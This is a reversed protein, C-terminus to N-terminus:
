FAEGWLNGLKFIIRKTKMNNYMAPRTEAWFYTLTTLISPGRPAPTLLARVNAVCNPQEPYHAPLRKADGSSTYPAISPLHPFGTRAFTLRGILAWAFYRERPSPRLSMSCSSSACRTRTRAIWRHAWAKRAIYGDDVPTSERVDCNARRTRPAPSAPSSPPAPPPPHPPGAGLAHVALPPEAAYPFGTSPLPWTGSGIAGMLDAAVFLLGLIAGGLAAARKLEKYISDRVPLHSSYLGRLMQQDKLQKAIDRPGLGSVEIWTGSFLACASLMFHIYIKRSIHMRSSAARGPAVGCGFLQALHSNAGSSHRSRARRSAPRRVGSLSVAAARKLSVARRKEFAICHWNRARFSRARPIRSTNIAAPARSWSACLPGGLRVCQVLRSNAGASHTRSRHARLYRSAARFEEDMHVDLSTQRSSRLLLEGKLALVAEYDTLAQDFEETEFSVDGLAVYTDALTLQVDEDEDGRHPSSDDEPEVDDDGDEAAADEDRRHETGRQSPPTLSSHRHHPTATAAAIPPPSTCDHRASPPLTTSCSPASRQRCYHLPPPAM